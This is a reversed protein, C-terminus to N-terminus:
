KPCPILILRRDKAVIKEVFGLPPQIVIFDTTKVFLQKGRETVQSISEM